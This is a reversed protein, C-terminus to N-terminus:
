GYEVELIRYCYRPGKHKLRLPLFGPVLSSLSNVSITRLMML